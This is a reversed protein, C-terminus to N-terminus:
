ARPRGTDNGTRMYGFFSLALIIGAIGLGTYFVFGNASGDATAPPPPTAPAPADVAARAPETRTAPAPQQSLTSAPAPVRAQAPTPRAPTDTAVHRAPNALTTVTSEADAKPPPANEASKNLPKIVSVPLTSPDPPPPPPAPPAAVIAAATKSGDAAGNAANAGSAGGAGAVVANPVASNAASNASGSQGQNAVPAVQALTPEQQANNNGVTPDVGASTLGAGAWASPMLSCCAALLLIRSSIMPKHYRPHGRQAVAAFSPPRNLRRRRCAGNSHGCAPM